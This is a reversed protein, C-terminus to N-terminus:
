TTAKERNSTHAARSAASAAPNDGDRAFRITAGVLLDLADFVPVPADIQSAVLSFETCCICIARAGAAAQATAEDRLQRIAAPSPGLAKIARITALTADPNALPVLPLGRATMPADFVGVRALAPSGLLGVPGGPALAAAHQAAMDVMSLFPLRTKARIAPAYHHATNCPMVLAQAGAAELGQAMRALVPAPDDGGGELLAKIRSPVQPNQDVLLPIHDGDDAAPVAAIVRSMFLVTAEPGMGGIVGVTRM